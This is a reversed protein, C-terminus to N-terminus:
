AEERIPQLAIGVELNLAWGVIELSGARLEFEDFGDFSLEGSHL